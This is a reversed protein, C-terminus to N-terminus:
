LDWTALTALFALTATPGQGINGSSAIWTPEEDLGPEATVVHAGSM